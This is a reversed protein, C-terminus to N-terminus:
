ATFNLPVVAVKVRMEGLFIVAVTGEPAVVPGILTVVGAPVAVLALLKVTVAGGGGGFGGATPREGVTPGGVVPMATLPVSKPALSATSTYKSVVSRARAEVLEDPAKEAEM